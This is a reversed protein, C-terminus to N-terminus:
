SENKAQKLVIVLGLITPVWLGIFIGHLEAGTLFLYEAVVIIIVCIAIIFVNSGGLKKFTNM